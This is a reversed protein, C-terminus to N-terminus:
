YTLENRCFFCDVIVSTTDAYIYSNNNRITINCSDCIPNHGCEPVINEIKCIENKCLGCYYKYEKQKEM